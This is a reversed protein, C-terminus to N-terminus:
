RGGTSPPGARDPRASRTGRWCNIIVRSRMRAASTARIASRPRGNAPNHKNNKLVTRSPVGNEDARDASSGSTSGPSLYGSPVTIPLWM